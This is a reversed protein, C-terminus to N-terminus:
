QNTRVATPQNRQYPLHRCTQSSPRQEGSEGQGRDAGDRGRDGTETKEEGTTPLIDGKGYQSQM